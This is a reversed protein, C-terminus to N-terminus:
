KVDIAMVIFERGIRGGHHPEHGNGDYYYWQFPKMKGLTTPLVPLNKVQLGNQKLIEPNIFYLIDETTKEPTKSFHIMYKGTTPELMCFEGSAHTKDIAMMGSGPTLLNAIANIEDAATGTLKLVAGFQKKIAALEQDSSAAKTQSIFPAFAFITLILLAVIYFYKKKFSSM